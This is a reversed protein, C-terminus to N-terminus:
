KIKNIFEPLTGQSKQYNLQSIMLNYLSNIYNSQATKYATDDNLYDTLSAVGRQYQYDTVDLLKKALVMNDQNSRYSSYATGVSTKANEFRLKLNEKNIGFNALDNKLNLQEEKLLSKRKFGNTLPINVSLGVYSFSNWSSFANSFDNNLSQTALKGVANLTPMYTAQRTKVNIEQLAISQENIRVETLSELSFDEQPLGEAFSEYNLSDHIVLATEIPMGMANKLTNVALQEKTVADQIQYNTTNLNVRVRDVDKELITGKEFQYMLVKVMEEYKEKNLILMKLQQHYILVQFYATSTNYILTEQNQTKQLETMIAYPKNAKIGALKSQDYITQSFDLGASTNFKTGFQVATPEPGFIGGPLVTTQLSLNNVFTASATIQPLYGSLSQTSKEKAIRNNNDYVSLSPHNKLTYDVSEGLSFSTQAKASFFCTAFLLFSLIKM